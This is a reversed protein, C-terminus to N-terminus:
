GNIGGCNCRIGKECRHVCMNKIVRIAQKASVEEFSNFQLACIIPETFVANADAYRSEKITNMWILVHPRIIDRQASLGCVFDLIVCSANSNEALDHMRHAQRLRGEESFDWDAHRNREVDANFMVSHDLASNIQRALTTKGSGPLGMM